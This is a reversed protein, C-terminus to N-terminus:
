NPNHANLEQIIEQRLRDTADFMGCIAEDIASLRIYDSREKREEPHKVTLLLDYVPVHDFDIDIFVACEHSYLNRADSIRDRWWGKFHVKVWEKRKSGSLSILSLCFKALQESLELVSQLEFILAELFVLINYKIDSPLNIAIHPEPLESNNLFDRLRELQPNLLEVLHRVYERKLSVSLGLNRARQKQEESHGPIREEDIATRVASWIPRVWRDRAIYSVYRIDKPFPKECPKM